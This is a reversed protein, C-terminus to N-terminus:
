EDLDDKLLGYKDILYVMSTMAAAGLKLERENVVDIRDNETHHYDFYKQSDTRLGMLLGGQEKLPSIDAGSGGKLVFLMYPELLVSWESVQRFYGTFVDEEADCSFARPVFGGSDSEIAALHYEGKVEAEDAYARGGGLGNEENMFLVCRITRKPKYNMAKLTHIVQMAHVCGAGDDHAGGGVDWSDLHGGVLIIEDPALSGKIEAIVNYSVHNTSVMKCHTEIYLEAKQRQLLRSLNDADNTSIAVAPIERVGQKYRTTGTHPVNDRSTTLSRVVAAVAGFEAAVAPGNVRQDGARGYAHFTNILKVDMPRNFFVIKGAIQSAGLQRVEDLSKVEIVEAQVGGPGTGISNGLALANFQISNGGPLGRVEVKEKNGRVWQPVTCPQLYVTDVLESLIEKTYAIAEEAGLSGALRGGIRESLHELWEYAKGKELAHEHIQKIILADQDYQAQVNGITLLAFSLAIVTTIGKEYVNIM